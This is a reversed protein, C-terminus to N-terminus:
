SIREKFHRVYVDHLSETANLTGNVLVREQRLARNRRVRRGNGKTGGINSEVVRGGRDKGSSGGKSGSTSSCFEVLRPCM